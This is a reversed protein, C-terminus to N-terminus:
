LTSCWTGFLPLLRKLNIPSHSDGFFLNDSLLGQPPHYHRTGAVRVTQPCASGSSGKEASTQRILYTILYASGRTQRCAKAPRLHHTFGTSTQEANFM